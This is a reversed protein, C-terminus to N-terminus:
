TTSGMIVHYLIKRLIALPKAFFLVTQMFNGGSDM